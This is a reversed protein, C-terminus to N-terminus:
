RLQRAYAIIAGAAAAPDEVPLAHSANKVLKVTVRAAGFEDVLQNATSRPRFPDFEAQLDLLPATGANWYESQPTADRAIEEAKQAVPDFGTLWIRPDRGPAFFTKQLYIM